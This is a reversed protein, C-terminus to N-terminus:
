CYMGEKNNKPTMAKGFIEHCSLMHDAIAKRAPLKLSLIGRAKYEDFTCEINGKM